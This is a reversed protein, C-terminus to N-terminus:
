NELGQHNREQHYHACFEDVARRLLRVGVLVLHDLCESEISRVYREACANLNSSRVPLRISEVGACKLLSLFEKTFVTARDHILFKCERLFGELCDTLIGSTTASFRGRHVDRLRTVQHGMRKMGTTARCSADAAPCNRCESDRFSTRNFDPKERTDLGLRLSESQPSLRSQRIRHKM